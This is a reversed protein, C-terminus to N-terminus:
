LRYRLPFQSGCGGTRVMVPYLFFLAEGEDFAHALSTNVVREVLCAPHEDRNGMAFVAPAVVAENIDRLTM